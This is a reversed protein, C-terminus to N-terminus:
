TSLEYKISNYQIGYFITELKVIYLVFSYFSM